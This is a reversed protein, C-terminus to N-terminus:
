QSEQYAICAIEVLADHPLMSVQVTARAPKVSYNFREGYVRNMVSFDKLDKLYVESKVVNELSLGQAKLIAEINNLVLRTQEEITQGAMKGTKPDIAIQGSIFITNGAVVGQSYPGLASPAQSTEIKSTGVDGFLSSTALAVSLIFTQYKM